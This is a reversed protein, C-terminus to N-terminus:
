KAFRRALSSNRYSIDESVEKIIRIEEPFRIQTDEKTLEIELIARDSWFPYIDIEFYQGDYILCYRDKCIQRKECATDELFELYEERSLRTEIELRKLGSITKKVTKFYVYHNDVGRQRIRIRDGNPYILYTQKIEVRKCNALSNLLETDPYEILFKREIELPEPEGLFFAIEDALRNLKGQIDTSNDIVRFHPHGTWASILKGDLACAEEPTETRADNTVNGYFEEAGNAATMLHFVADYGDRLEVENTNLWRLVSEFEKDNMYARNDMAGRDCVILKKDGAMGEAACMFAREKELQLKLVCLQFEANTRCTKPSVGGTILETATEPVLLVTYGMESFVDRIYRMATTKGGCPGGTVAIKTISM